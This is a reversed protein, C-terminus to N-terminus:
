NRSLSQYKEPPADSKRNEARKSAELTVRMAVALEQPSFYKETYGNSLKVRDKAALQEWTLGDTFHWAAAQAANQTVEGRGLMRCIEAVRQDQTFSEIPRIEYAVRPNPDTKGHELCVTAVKIKGVKDPAVNFMGGMGMGGGGMGGMMGGGGMGGGMGQNGGGGGGGGINGGGLGGGGLGGIQALVPVGAFAEPLKIELPQKAKNEILVNAEKADKPILKVAIDGAKIAEFLEVRKAAPGAKDAANASFGIAVVSLVTLIATM